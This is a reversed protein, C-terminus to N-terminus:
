KLTTSYTATMKPRVTTLQSRRNGDTTRAFAAYVAAPDIITRVESVPGRLRPRFKMKGRVEPVNVTKAM